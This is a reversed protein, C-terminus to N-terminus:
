KDVQKSSLRVIVLGKLFGNLFTTGQILRRRWDERTIQGQKAGSLSNKLKCYQNAWEIVTEDDISEKKIQRGISILKNYDSGTKEQKPRLRLLSEIVTNLCERLPILSTSVPDNDTVPTEFAEHALHFLELASKKDVQSRDLGFTVLLKEVEDAIEPRSVVEFFSDIVDSVVVRRESYYHLVMPEAETISSTASTSAFTATGGAIIVADYVSRMGHLLEDAAQNVNQWLTIQTETDLLEPAIQSIDDMAKAMDCIRQGNGMADRAIEVLAHGKEHAARLEKQLIDNPSASEKNTMKGQICM